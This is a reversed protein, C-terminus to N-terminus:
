SRWFGPTFLVLVTFLELRGLLMGACLLWKATVPLSQFNGAPGIVEGLGPGVNSIATAAGSVSTMFDLGLMGLAIALVAFCLLYVFFFSLVAELIRDPIPQRNWYPIFVGNPQILRYLQVRSHAVLMQFRFVKIGCTTSGACGGVFMAFLLVVMASSGWAGFNTSSYGTGTMMSITNFFALRLATWHGAMGNLWIWATIMLSLGGAICLFWRVQSDRFLVWPGGRLM